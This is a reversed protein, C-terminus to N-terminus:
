NGVALLLLLCSCSALRSQCWCCKTKPRLIIYLLSRPARNLAYTQSLESAPIAPEFEAPSMSTQKKHSNRQWTIFHSFTYKLVKITEGHM